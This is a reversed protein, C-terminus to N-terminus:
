IHLVIGKRGADHAEDHVFKDVKAAAQGKHNHIFNGVEVLVLDLALLDRGQFFLPITGGNDEDAVEGSLKRLNPHEVGNSGIKAHIVAHWEWREQLHDDM